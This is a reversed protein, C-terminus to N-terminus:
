REDLIEQMTKGVGPGFPVLKLASGPHEKKWRTNAADV